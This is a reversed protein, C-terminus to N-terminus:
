SSGWIFDRTIKDLDKITKEPLKIYSMVYSPIGSLSTKVLVVRGAMNMTTSLGTLKKRINYIQYHFDSSTPRKNFIPFGLYRGFTEKEEIGLSISCQERVLPECHKSFLVRSKACNIKQGSDKWFKYLTNIIKNCNKM